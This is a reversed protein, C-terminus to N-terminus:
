LLCLRAHTCLASGTPCHPLTHVVCQHLSVYTKEGRHAWEEGGGCVWRQRAAAAGPHKDAALAMTQRQGQGEPSSLGDLSSEAQSPHRKGQRDRSGQADVRIGLTLCSPGSARHHKRIKRTMQM